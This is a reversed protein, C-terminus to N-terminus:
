NIPVAKQLYKASEKVFMYLLGFVYYPTCSAEKPACIVNTHTITSYTPKTQTITTAHVLASARLVYVHRCMDSNM